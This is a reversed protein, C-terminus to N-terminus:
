FFRSEIQSIIDPNFLIHINVPADSSIPCIRLEVNPVILKVSTPIKNSEVVKKYNEISLYDTIGIAVINKASNDDEIYANIDNYFNEWKENINAGKYQDNKVTEPTHIHLDWRRWESGRLFQNKAM